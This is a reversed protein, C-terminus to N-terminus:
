GLEQLSKDILVLQNKMEQVKKKEMEVVHAPAKGTFGPSSLRKESATVGKQIKEKFTSFDVKSINQKPMLFYNMVTIVVLTAILYWLIPTFKGGKFPRFSPSKGNKNEDM